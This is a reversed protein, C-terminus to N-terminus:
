GGKPNSRKRTPTKRGRNSPSYDNMDIGSVFGSSKKPPLTTKKEEGARLIRSVAERYAKTRKDLKRIEGTPKFKSRTFQGGGTSRIEQPRTTLDAAYNQPLGSVGFLKQMESVYRDSVSDLRSFEKEIYGSNETGIYKGAISEAERANRLAQGKPLYARAIVKDWGPIVAGRKLNKPVNEFYNLAYGTKGAYIPQGAADFYYGDTESFFRKWYGQALTAIANKAIQYFRYTVAQPPIRPEYRLQGFELYEWFPAKGISLWYGVRADITAQRQGPPINIARSKIPTEPDEYKAKKAIARRVTDVESETLDWKDRRSRGGRLEVEDRVAQIEREAQSIKSGRIGRRAAAPGSYGGYYKTKGAWMARWYGYRVSTKNKLLQGGHYPLSVRNKRGRGSPQDKLLAGYHFAQATNASKGFIEEFDVVVTWTALSAGIIKLKNEEEAKDILAFLLARYEYPMQDESLKNLAAHFADRLADYILLQAEVQMKRTLRSIAVTNNSVPSIISGDNVFLKFNKKGLQEVANRYIADSGTGSQYRDLARGYASVAASTIQAQIAAQMKLLEGAFQPPAAAIAKGTLIAIDKTNSKIQADTSKARLALEKAEDAIRKAEAQRAAAELQDLRRSLGIDGTQVEPGAIKTRRFTNSRRAL